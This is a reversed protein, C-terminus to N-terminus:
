KRTISIKSSDGAISVRPNTKDDGKIQVEVIKDTGNAVNLQVSARDDIDVRAESSIEIVIRDSYPIFEVGSSNNDSPYSTTSNKYKYYYKGDSKKLELEIEEKGNKVSKIYSEQSSDNTKGIMVTPLDSKISKVIVSFDVKSAQNNTSSLNANTQSSGENNSPSTVVVEPKQILFPAKKGYDGEISWQLYEGDRESIKPIAYFELNMSGTLEGNYEVTMSVDSIAIQRNSTEIKSIFSQVNEFTGKFNISAKLLEVTASSQAQEQTDEQQSNDQGEEKKNLGKYNDVLGQFSTQGKDKSKDQIVEVSKVSIESFAIDGKLISKKLYDDLQLIIKEQIITPYFDKSKLNIESSLSSVDEQKKDLLRITEMAEQYRTEIKIKEDKLANIKESQPIYIFNYYTVSVLVCGLLFLLM